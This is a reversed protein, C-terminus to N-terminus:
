IDVVFFTRRLNAIQDQYQFMKLVVKILKSVVVVAAAAVIINSKSINTGWLVMHIAMINQYPLIPTKTIAIMAIVLQLCLQKPKGQAEVTLM